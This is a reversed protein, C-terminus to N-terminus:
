FCMFIHKFNKSRLDTIVILGNRLGFAIIYGAHPCSSVCCVKAKPAFLDNLTVLEDSAYRWIIVFGDESVSVIRDNGAFM